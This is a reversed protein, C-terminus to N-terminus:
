SNLIAKNYHITKFNCCLNKYLWILKSLTLYYLLSCIGKTGYQIIQIITTEPQQEAKKGALEVISRQDYCSFNVISYINQLEIILCWCKYSVFSTLIYIIKRVYNVAFWEIPPFINSKEYLIELKPSWPPSEIHFKMYIPGFWGYKLSYIRNKMYIETEAFYECGWEM